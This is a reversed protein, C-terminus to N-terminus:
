LISNKKEFLLFSFDLHIMFFLVRRAIVQLVTELWVTASIVLRAEIPKKKLLPAALSFAPM